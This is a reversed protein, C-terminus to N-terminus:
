NVAFSYILVAFSVALIAVLAASRMVEARLIDGIEAGRPRAEGETAATKRATRVMAHRSLSTEVAHRLRTLSPPRTEPLAAPASAATSTQLLKPEDAGLRIATLVGTMCAGTDLGIRHAGVFAAEKPTHGHVVIKEFPGAASLFDDRIWLLDQERQESLPTGPRVGAHVFLYDGYVASLELAQLFALHEEPLREVLEWSARAWEEEDAGAAPPTVGYSTLTAAGGYSVWEPGKRADHMFQLLAQEHNGKLTRVEFRDSHSLNILRQIVGRSAPGRDVYDGVFIVVPREMPKLRDVDEGISVLLRDLLDLRGHIDGIAYILRGATSPTSGKPRDVKSVRAELGRRPM